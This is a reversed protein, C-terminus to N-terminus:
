GRRCRSRARCAGGSSRGRPSSRRRARLQEARDLHARPRLDPRVRHHDVVHGGFEVTTPLGPWGTRTSPLFGSPGSASQAWRGSGTASAMRPRALRRVSSSSSTASCVPRLGPPASTLGSLRRPPGSERAASSLAACRLLLGARATARSRRTGPRRAATGSGPTSCGRRWARAGGLDARLRAGRLRPDGSARARRCCSAPTSTRPWRRTTACCATWGCCTRCSTTRSSRSGTSTTSSPRRRRARPREAVIQARKYFGRDDFFRMGQALLPRWGSRRAAPRASWSSRALARRSLPRPRAAGGRLPADACPGADQGLM